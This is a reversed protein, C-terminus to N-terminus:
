VLLDFWRRLIVSREKATLDAWGGFAAKACAIAENAEEFGFHPVKAIVEGTTPDTVPVVAEGIWADDVLCQATWKEEM